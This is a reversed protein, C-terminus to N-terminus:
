KAQVKQFVFSMNLFSAMKSDRHLCISDTYYKEFDCYEILKLSHKSCEKTLIDKYVLYEESLMNEGFYLTGSLMFNIQNGITPDIKEYKKEIFVADNKVIGISNELHRHITDGNPCIGIFLGNVKLSQSIQSLIGHLTEKTKWFYHFAFMCSIIDFENYVPINKTKLFDQFMFKEFTYFFKYNRNSLHRQNKFRNIAEIIYSKNIDVGKVNQLNLNHWKQIDGGRGVGVDLLHIENPPKNIRQVAKELLKFKISNHFQRLVKADEM